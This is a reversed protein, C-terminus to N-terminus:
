PATWKIDAISFGAGSTSDPGIRALNIQFATTEALGCQGGLYQFGTTLPIAYHVFNGNQLGTLPQSNHLGCFPNGWHVLITSVEVLPLDVQLDFEVRGRPYFGTPFVAHPCFGTFNPCSTFQLYPTATFKNCGTTGNICPVTIAMSTQGSIPDMAGPGYGGGAAYQATLALGGWSGTVGNTLINYVPMVPTLTPTPTLTHTSNNTGGGGGGGGGGNQNSSSGLPNQGASSTCAGLVFGVALISGLVIAVFRQEM